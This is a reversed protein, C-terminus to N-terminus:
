IPPSTLAENLKRNMTGHEMIMDRGEPIEYITIEALALGAAMRYSFHYYGEERMAAKEIRRELEDACDPHLAATFRVLLNDGVDEVTMIRDCVWSVSQYKGGRKKMNRWSEEGLLALLPACEKKTSFRLAMRLVLPPTKVGGM